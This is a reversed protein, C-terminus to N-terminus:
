QSHRYTAMIFISDILQHIARLNIPLYVYLNCRLYLTLRIHAVYIKVDKALGSPNREGKGQEICLHAVYLNLYASMSEVSHRNRPM